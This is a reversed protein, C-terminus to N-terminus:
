DEMCIVHLEGPGHVGITLTMEIDATRSPGSILVAVPAKGIDKIQMVQDLQEYVDKERLLAIHIEPLLSVTLPRGPGGLVLLSGTEAIAASVGTLGAKVHACTHFTEGTPFIIRIGVESLRELFGDPLYAADWAIIEQIYNAQLIELIIKWADSESCKKFKGGLAELEDSFRALLTRGQNQSINM